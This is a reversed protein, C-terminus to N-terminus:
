ITLYVTAMYLYMAVFYQPRRLVLDNYVEPLVTVELAYKM